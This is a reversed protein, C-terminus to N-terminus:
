ANNPMTKAIAGDILSGMSSGGCVFMLQGTVFDNMPDLFFMTARAVDDPRGVRGAPIMSGIAKETDSGEPIVSTFMETATIPGPAVANVTIGHRGLEMAWTRTISVLAAKTGSYVTRTALGLIARTSMNVIRGFKAAKMAPLFSQVLVLASGIHLNTLETLDNFEVEELPKSRTVGANNVVTTVDYKAAIETATEQTAKPDMLDVLYHDLNEHEFTPARRALSIVQYDADLLHQCVSAGIGSSGGSVVAVKKTMNM